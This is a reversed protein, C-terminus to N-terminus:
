CSAARSFAPTRDDLRSAVSEGGMSTLIGSAVLAALVHLDHAVQSDQSELGVGRADAGVDAGPWVARGVGLQSEGVLVVRLRVVALILFLDTLHRCDVFEVDRLEGVHHLLHVGELFAFPVRSSLQMM